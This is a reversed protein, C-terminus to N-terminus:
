VQNRESKGLDIDNFKKGKQGQIDPDPVQGQVDKAPTTKQEKAKEVYGATILSVATRDPLERQDDRGGALYAPRYINRLYKVKMAFRKNVLWMGARRALWM